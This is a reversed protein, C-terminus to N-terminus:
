CGHGDEEVKYTPHRDYCSKGLLAMHAAPIWVPSGRAASASHEFKVVAGGPWCRGLKSISPMLGRKKIEVLPEWSGSSLPSM